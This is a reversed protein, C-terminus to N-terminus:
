TCGMAFWPWAEPVETRLSQHLVIERKLSSCCVCISDVYGFPLRTAELPQV